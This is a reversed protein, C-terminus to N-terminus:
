LADVRNCIIGDPRGVFSGLWGSSCVAPSKAQCIINVSKKPRPTQKITDPSATPDPTSKANAGAEVYTDDDGNSYANVNSDAIRVTRVHLHAFYEGASAVDGNRLLGRDFLRAAR